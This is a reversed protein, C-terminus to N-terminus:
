ESALFVATFYFIVLFFEWKGLFRIGKKETIFLRNLVRKCFTEATETFVISVCLFKAPGMHQFCVLENCM